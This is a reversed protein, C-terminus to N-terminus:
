TGLRFSARARDKQDQDIGIYVKTIKPSAHNFIDMLMAIDKHKKYYHYGFTKRMTHTGVNEIGCDEAAIKVILYAAQRTIPKNRGKRSQFLYDGVKKGKIYQDIEKKLLSNMKVRNRKKTKKEVVVIYHGRINSVKLNVIDSIRLGTNIGVLFLLYNRYNWEKLYDCMMNVDDINRIPEVYNM